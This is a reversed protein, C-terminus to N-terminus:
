VQEAVFESTLDAFEPPNQGSKSGSAKSTAQLVSNEYLNVLIKQATPENIRGGLTFQLYYLYSYSDFYVEPLHDPTIKQAAKIDASSLNPCTRRISNAMQTSTIM